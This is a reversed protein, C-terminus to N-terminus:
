RGRKGRRASYRPVLIAVAVLVMVGLMVVSTLRGLDFWGAAFGALAVLALATVVWWNRRAPARGHGPRPSV